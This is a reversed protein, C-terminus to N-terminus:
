LSPDRLSGIGVSGDGTEHAPSPTEPRKAEPSDSPTLNQLLDAPPAFFLCGTVATSLDLIRDTNGPPQGIFMNNLMQEIL